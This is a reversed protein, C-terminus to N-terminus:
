PTTTPSSCGGQPISPGDLRPAQRIAETDLRVEGGETVKLYRRYRGSTLLEMAWKATASRTPHRALEEQLTEIV